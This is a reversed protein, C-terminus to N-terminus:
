GRQVNEITCVCVSDRKRLVTVIQELVHVNSTADKRLSVM